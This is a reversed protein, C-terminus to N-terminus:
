AAGPPTVLDLVRGSERRSPPSAALNGLGSRALALDRELTRIREAHEGLEEADALKGLFYGVLIGVAASGIPGLVALWALGTM